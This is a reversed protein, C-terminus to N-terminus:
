ARRRRRGILFLGLVALSVSTPEPVVTIAFTDIRFHDGDNGNEAYVGFAGVTGSLTGGALAGVSIEGGSGTSATLVHWNSGDAFDFLGPTSFTSFAGSPGTNTDSTTSIDSAYWQGAIQIAFRGLALDGGSGDANVDVSLSTINGISTSDLVGAPEASFMLSPGDAEDYDVHTRPATYGYVSKAVGAPDFSTTNLAHTSLDDVGGADNALYVSWGVSSFTSNETLGASFDETYALAAHATVAPLSFTAMCLTGLIVVTKTQNRTFM